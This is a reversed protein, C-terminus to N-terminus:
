IKFFALIITWIHDFLNQRQTKLVISQSIIAENISMQKTDYGPKSFSIQLDENVYPFSFSGDAASEVTKKSNNITVKALPQKYANIIQGNVTRPTYADMIVGVAKRASGDDNWIATSGGTGLWYNVGILKPVLALKPFLNSLWEAQETENLNGHIDPIPAGFEGLMVNGGSKQAIDMIDSVLQDPTKVYHDITVLGGIKKTTDKDMITKAVDANMSFYNCAVNKHIQQFSKVCINYEEILFQRYEDIKGTRRPDGPGGNECEPCTTFIDGDRFLDAHKQIFKAIQEHHENQTMAPYKFWKEWGSFNGRFWVNINNLRAAEVWKTLIPIFEEDYPTGIAVHTANTNAIDAVQIQITTQFEPDDLKERSLDRSYKMTDISQVQWWPTKISAASVQQTFVCFFIGLIILILYKM